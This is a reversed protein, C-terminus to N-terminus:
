KLTWHTGEPRELLRWAKVVRSAILMIVLAALVIWGAILVRQRRLRKREAEAAEARNLIVARLKEAERDAGTYRREAAASVPLSGKMRIKKALATRGLFVGEEERVKRDAAPQRSAPASNVAYDAM